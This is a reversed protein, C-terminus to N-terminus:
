NVWYFLCTGVPYPADHPLSTFWNVVHLTDCKLALTTDHGHSNHVTAHLGRRTAAQLAEHANGKVIAYTM